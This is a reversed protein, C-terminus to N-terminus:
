EEDEDIMDEKWSTVLALDAICPGWTLLHTSPVDINSSEMDRNLVLFCESSYQVLEKTHYYGLARQIGQSVEVNLDDM